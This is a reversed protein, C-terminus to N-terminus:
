NRGKVAELGGVSEFTVDIDDPVILSALIAM